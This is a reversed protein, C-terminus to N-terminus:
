PGPNFDNQPGNFYDLVESGAGLWRESQGWVTQDKAQQTLQTGVYFPDFQAPARNATGPRQSRDWQAASRNVWRPGTVSIDGPVGPFMQKLMFILDSKTMWETFKPDTQSLTAIHDQIHRVAAYGAFPRTANTFPLKVFAARAFEPVIKGITYSLPYFGLYPHNLTRELASRNPNYFHIRNATEATDKITEKMAMLIMEEPGHLEMLTNTAYRLIKIDEGVLKEGSRLKAIIQEMGPFDKGYSRFNALTSSIKERTFGAYVAPDLHEAVAKELLNFDNKTQAAFEEAFKAESKLKEVAGAINATEPAILENVTKIVSENGLSSSKEALDKLAFADARAAAIAEPTDGAKAFKEALTDVAKRLSAAAEVSGAEAFAFNRPRYAGIVRTPNIYGMRQDRLIHLMVTRADNTGHVLRAAAWQQPFKTSIESAVKDLALQMAMQNRQAQKGPYPNKIANFLEGPGRTFSQVWSKSVMKGAETALIDDAMKGGLMIIGSAADFDARLVSGPQGLVLAAHESELRVADDSLKALGVAEGLKSNVYPLSRAWGYKAEYPGATMVRDIARLRNFFKSEVAEQLYFNPNLKFKLMPYMFDTIIALQPIVVKLKGTFAQTAGVVDKSGAYMYMLARRPDNGVAFKVRGKVATDLVELGMLKSFTEPGLAKQMTDRLINEDVALARPVRNMKLATESIAAFLRRGQVASGGAKEVLRITRELQQAEVGKSAIPTLWRDALQRMPSRAFSDATLNLGKDVLGASSDLFPSISESVYDVESGTVRTSVRRVLNSEPAFGISYKGASLSKITANGAKPAVEDLIKSLAALEEKSAMTVYSKTKIMEDIHQALEHWISQDARGVLLHFDPFHSTIEAALDDVTGLADKSTLKPNSLIKAALDEPLNVLDKATLPVASELKAALAQIETLRELTLTDSKVLNIRTFKANAPDNLLKSLDAFKKPNMRQGTLEFFKEPDSNKIANIAVRLHAANTGQAGYAAIEMTQVHRAQEAPSLGEISDKWIKELMKTQEVDAVLSQGGLSSAIREKSGGQIAALGKEIFLEKRRANSLGELKYAGESIHVQAELAMDSLRIGGATQINKYDRGGEAAVQKAEAQALDDIWQRRFSRVVSDEKLFINGVVEAAKDAAVVGDDALTKAAWSLGTTGSPLEGRAAMQEGRKVVKIVYDASAEAIKTTNRSFLRGVTFVM